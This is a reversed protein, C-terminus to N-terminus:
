GKPIRIPRSSGRSLRFFPRDTFEGHGKFISFNHELFEELPDESQLYSLVQNQLNAMSSKNALQLEQRM